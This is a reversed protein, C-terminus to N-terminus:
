DTKWTLWPDTVWYGDGWHATGDYPDATHREENEDHYGWVYDESWTHVGWVAVNAENRGHRRGAIRM